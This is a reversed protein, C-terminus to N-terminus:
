ALESWSCNSIMWCISFCPSFEEPGPANKQGVGYIDNEWRTTTSCVPPIKKAITCSYSDQLHVLSIQGDWLIPIIHYIRIMCELNWGNGDGITPLPLYIVMRLNTTQAQTQWM